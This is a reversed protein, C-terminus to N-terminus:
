SALFSAMLNVILFLVLYNEQSRKFWRFVDTTKKISNMLNFAM